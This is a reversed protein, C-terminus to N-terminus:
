ATAESASVWRWLLLWVIVSSATGIISGVFADEVFHQFLYVRSYGTLTALLLFLWGRGRHNDVFALLSFMAFATTTHGSPFSNYSYIELGKIIRYQYVSHEFFKLPRLREPFVVVKLFLSTLSSLAFSAFAMAGIRRNVVLLIVCVIVFFVGDGFYTAYTFFVDATPSNHSNVWQMLNEETYRIQLVGVVGLLLAFLLFFDRNRRFLDLLM